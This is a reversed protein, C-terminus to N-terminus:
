KKKSEKLEHPFFSVVPRQLRYAIKALTKIDFDCQGNEWKILKRPSVGIFKAFPKVDMEKQIRALEIEAGILSMTKKIAWEEDSYVDAFCSVSKANKIKEEISM